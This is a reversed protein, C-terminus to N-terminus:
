NVRPLAWSKLWDTLIGDCSLEWVYFGEGAGVGWCGQPHELMLLDSFTCPSDGNAHGSHWWNCASVPASPNDSWSRSALEPSRPSGSRKVSGAQGDVSKHLGRVEVVLAKSEM